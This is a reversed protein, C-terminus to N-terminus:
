RWREGVAAAAELWRLEAGDGRLVVVFHAAAVTTTFRAPLFLWKKCRWVAFKGMVGSLM